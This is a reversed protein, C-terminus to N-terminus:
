QKTLNFTFNYIANDSNTGVGNELKTNDSNLTATTEYTGPATVITHYIHVTNSNPTKNWTGALAYGSVSGTKKFIGTIKGDPKFTFVTSDYVESSVQSTGIWTTNSLDLATEEKACSIAMLAIICLMTTLKLTNKMNKM